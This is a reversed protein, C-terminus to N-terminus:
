DVDIGAADAWINIFNTFAAMMIVEMIEEDSLGHERLKQFDEEKVANPDKATRVAFKLIIKHLESIQAEDPNLCM